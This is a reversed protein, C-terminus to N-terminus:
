IQFISNQCPTEASFWKCTYRTFTFYIKFLIILRDILCNIFMKILLVYFLYIFLYINNIIIFLYLLVRLGTALPLRLMKM